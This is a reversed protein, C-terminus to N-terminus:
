FTHLGNGHFGTISAHRDWTNDGQNPLSEMLLLLLDIEEKFFFGTHLNFSCYAIETRCLLFIHTEKFINQIPMVGNLLCLVLFM